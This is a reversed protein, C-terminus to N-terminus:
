YKRIKLILRWLHVYFCIEGFSFVQILIVWMKWEHALYYLRTQGGVQYGSNNWVTSSDIFNPVSRIIFWFMKTRHFSIYIYEVLKIHCKAPHITWHNLHQYRSPFTRPAFEYMAYFGQFCMVYKRSTPRTDRCLSPTTLFICRYRNLRHLM